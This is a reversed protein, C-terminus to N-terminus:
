HTHALAVFAAITGLLSVILTGIAAALTFRFAANSDQRIQKLTDMLETALLM